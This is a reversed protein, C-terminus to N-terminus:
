ADVVVAQVRHSSNFTEWPASLYQFVSGDQSNRKTVVAYRSDVPDCVVTKTSQPYRGLQSRLRRYREPPLANTFIDAAQANTCVYLLGIAHKQFQDRILHYPIDIHKTGKHYEPNHVLRICSQNDCYITTPKIQEQHLERLLQRLWIAEKTAKSAAINLNQQQCLCVIRNQSCSSIPGNNLMFFYGPFSNRTDLDGAFDSDSFRDSINHLFKSVAYAIDPRTGTMLYMLSGITQRYPIKNMEEIEQNDKPCMEKTLKSYPDSPVPQEMYLEEELDGNLFASRVDLQIMEIDLSAYLSLFTRISDFEVLPSFTEGYDLGSIQSYGKAVLRAKFM